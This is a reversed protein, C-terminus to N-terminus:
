DKSSSDSPRRTQAAAAQALNLHSMSQKQRSKPHEARQQHTADVTSIRITIRFLCLGFIHPAVHLHYCYIYICYAIDVYSNRRMEIGYKYIYIYARHYCFLDSMSLTYVYKNYIAPTAMETHIHTRSGVRGTTNRYIHALSRSHHSTYINTKLFLLLVVSCIHNFPLAGLQNVCM